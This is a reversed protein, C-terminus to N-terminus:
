SGSDGGQDNSESEKSPEAAPTAEKEEEDSDSAKEGTEGTEEADQDREQETGAPATQEEEPSAIAQPWGYTDFHYRTGFVTHETEALKGLLALGINLAIFAVGLATAVPRRSPHREPSRDLFPLLFLALIVLGTGLIGILKPVYKLAQYMSLFYWEPKVGVPTNFPDAKEHLPLPAYLIM